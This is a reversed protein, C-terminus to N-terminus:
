MLGQCWIERFEEHRLLKWLWLGVRIASQRVGCLRIQDDRDRLRDHLGGLVGHLNRGGRGTPADRNRRERRRRGEATKGDSGCRRRGRGSRRRGRVPVSLGFLWGRRCLGEPLMRRRPRRGPRRACTTAEPAARDPELLERHCDSDFRRQGRLHSGPVVFRRGRRPVLFPVASRVIQDTNNDGDFPTPHSQNASRYSDWRPTTTASEHFDYNRPQQKQKPHQHHYEYDRLIPVLENDECEKHM